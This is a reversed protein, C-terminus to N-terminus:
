HANTLYVVFELNEPRLPCLIHYVCCFKIQGCHTKMFFKFSYFVINVFFEWPM